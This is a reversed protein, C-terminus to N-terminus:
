GRLAPQAHRTRQDPRSGLAAIRDASTISTLRHAIVLVTKGRVRALFRELVQRETRPDLASTAEDLVYLLPDKLLARALALRQREGGSLRLGGEGAQTEIGQPLEAVFERLAATNLVDLLEAESAKPRALRLNSALTDHFVQTEQPVLGIVGRLRSLLGSGCTSVM